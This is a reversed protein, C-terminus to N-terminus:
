AGTAVRSRFRDTHRRSHSRAGVPARPRRANQRLQGPAKRAETRRPQNDAKDHDPLPGRARLPAGLRVITSASRNGLANRTDVLRDSHAVILEYDFAHHDTLIVACDFRELTKVDLPMSELAHPGGWVHAALVPVHPDSYAVEAGKEQLTRMVDLAPSERVDDVDRKYAVGLALVRAGNIAKRRTNLADAIKAVVYHPMHGNVQGALEIFRADFGNQKAKWSLYFPDIPICHGGLGPGPYFPM